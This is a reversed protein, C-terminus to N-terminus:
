QLLRGSSRQCRKWLIRCSGSMNFFLKSPLIRFRRSEEQCLADDSNEVTGLKETTGLKIEYGTVFYYKTVRVDVTVDGSYEHARQAHVINTRVTSLYENTRYEFIGACTARTDVDVDGVSVSIYSQCTM